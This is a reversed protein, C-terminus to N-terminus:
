KSIPVLTSNPIVYLHLAISAKRIFNIKSCLELLRLSASGVFIKMLSSILSLGSM